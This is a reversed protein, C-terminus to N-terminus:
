QADRLRRFFDAGFRHTGLGYDLTARQFRFVRVASEPLELTDLRAAIAELESQDSAIRALIDDLIRVREDREEIMGLFFCKALATTELNSGLIPGSMWSFFAEVGVDTVHYNKKTRGREISTEVTVAGQERLKQLAGRLAGLSARYFLSIGAEFHKNLDYITQPGALILLGLIVNGMTISMTGTM